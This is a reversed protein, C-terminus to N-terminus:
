PTKIFNFTGVDVGTFEKILRIVLYSAIIIVMGIIAFTVTKWAAQAKGPDGSSTILKFGGSVLLFFLVIAGAGIAISLLKGVVVGLDSLVAPQDAGTTWM